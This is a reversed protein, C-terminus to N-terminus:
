KPLLTKTGVRLVFAEKRLNMDNDKFDNFNEYEGRWINLAAPERM